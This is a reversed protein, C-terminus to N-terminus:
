PRGSAILAQALRLRTPPSAHYLSLADRLAEVAEPADGRSLAAAGRAFREDALAREHEHFLRTVAATTAFAPILLLVLAAIRSSRMELNQCARPSPSARSRPM